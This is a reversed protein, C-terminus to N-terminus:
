QYQVSGASTHALYCPNNSAAAANAVKLMNGKAAAQMQIQQKLGPPTSLSISISITLLLVLIFRHRQARGAKGHWTEYLM